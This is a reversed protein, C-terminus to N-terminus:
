KRKISKKYLNFEGNLDSKIRDRVKRVNDSIKKREAKNKKGELYFKEIESFMDSIGKMGNSAAYFAGADSGKRKRVAKFLSANYGNSMSRDLMLIYDRCLSKAQEEDGNIGKSCIVVIFPDEESYVAISAEMIVKKPDVDCTEEIVGKEPVLNYSITTSYNFGCDSAEDEESASKVKEGKKKKGKSFKEAEKDVFGELEKIVAIQENHSARDIFDALIRRKELPLYYKGSSYQMSMISLVPAYIDKFVKAPVRKKIDNRLKQSLAAGENIENSTPM